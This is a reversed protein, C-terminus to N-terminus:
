IKFGFTLGYTRPPHYNAPVLGGFNPGFGLKNTSKRFDTLNNVWLMAYLAPAGPSLDLAEWRLRINAITQAPIYLDAATGVLPFDPDLVKQGPLALIRSQYRLDGSLTWSGLTESDTLTLDAGVTATTKPSQAFVRNDAVNVVNGNRDTDLYEQYKTRLLGLTGFLRLADVPQADLEAEIGYVKARGANRNLTAATGAAMFVPVQKDKQRNYFAAINLRVKRDLFRTKLGLEFAENKEPDFSTRVDADTTAEGNFSGSRFGVAYKAYANVDPDFEYALIVTPSVNSFTKRVKDSKRIDITTIPLPLGPNPSLALIQYFRNLQKRESTWRAGGTLTLRDTLAYDVNAYLAYARARVGFRTDFQSAGFFYSQPNSSQANDRLYYAGVVYNLRDDVLAGILQLEQSFQKIKNQFGGLALPIPTGDVDLGLYGQDITAHRYSTLSRLTAAGIDLDANLTHSYTKSKDMPQRDLSLRSPRKDGVVYQDAPMGPMYIPSTPDFINGAGVAALATMPSENTRSRLYTYDLTLNSTPIWRAQAILSNRNLDDVKGTAAPFFGLPDPVLKTFGDRLQFQGSLKVFFNDTLPVNVLGRGAMYGYNGFSAEGELRFTDSPKRTVLSIAGALTNRGFLTGQPGRLVEIRELDMIDFVAGSAKGVYIGDLYIGVALDETVALNTTVSGRVAVQVSSSTTNGAKITLNPAIGSLQDVSTLRRQELEASGLATIAVPVDQLAQERKQATVIIEGDMGGTAGQAVAATAPLLAAAAIGCRLVTTRRFSM